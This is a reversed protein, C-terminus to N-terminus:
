LYTDVRYEYLVITYQILNVYLKYMCQDAYKNQCFKFNLRGM